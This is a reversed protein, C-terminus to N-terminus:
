LSKLVPLGRRVRTVAPTEITASDVVRGRRSEILKDLEDIREAEVEIEKLRLSWWTKEERREEELIRSAISASGLDGVRAVEDVNFTCAHTSGLVPSRKHTQLHSQSTSKKLVKHEKSTLDKVSEQSSVVPSGKEVIAVTRNAADSLNQQSPSRPFPLGAQLLATLTTRDGCKAANNVMEAVHRRRRLWDAQATTPTAHQRHTNIVGFIPSSMDTQAHRTQRRQAQICSLFSREFAREWLLAVEQASTSSSKSEDAFAFIFSNSGSSGSGRVGEGATSLPLVDVELALTSAGTTDAKIVRNTVGLIRSLGGRALVTYRVSDDSAQTLTPSALKSQSQSKKKSAKVSKAADKDDEKHMTTLLLLDDFVFAHLNEVESEAQKSQAQGRSFLNAVSAKRSAPRPPPVPASSKKLEPSLLYLSTVPSSTASGSRSQVPATSITAESPLSSWLPGAQYSSSSTSASDPSLLPAGSGLRPSPSLVSSTTSSKLGLPRINPLPPTLPAASFSREASSQPSNLMLRDMESLCVSKLVGQRILRRQRSALHFGDPLGKMRSELSKLEHYDEERAKVCNMDRIAKETVACLHQTERYDPHDPPTLEALQQSHSIPSACSCTM